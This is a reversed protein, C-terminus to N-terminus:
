LFIIGNFEITDVNKIYKKITSLNSQSTVKNTTIIIGYYDMCIFDAMINSKICRLVSNINAVHEDSLSIFKSINGNGMSIIIQRRSSGKTIMNICPKEKRTKNITKYVWEIKKLSLNPFNEKIKLIEKVNLSSAQTYTSNHSM